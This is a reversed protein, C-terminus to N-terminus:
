CLPQKQFFAVVAQCSSSNRLTLLMTDQDLALYLSLSCITLVGQVMNLICRKQIDALDLVLKLLKIFISERGLM